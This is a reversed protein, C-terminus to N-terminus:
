EIWIIGRAAVPEGVDQNQAAMHLGELMAVVSDIKDASQKKGPMCNGDPFTRLACHSLQWRLLSNGDHQIKAEDIWKECLKIVPGYMKGNQAFVGCKIGLKQLHLAIGLFSWPDFLVELPKLSAITEAILEYDVRNGPVIELEGAAEFRDYNLVNGERRKIHGEESCWSWSRLYFKGQYPTVAVVSSLDVTSSLDAGVFCPLGGIEPPFSPCLCRDWKDLNVWNSISSVDMNMRLRLFNFRDSATQRARQWEERFTEVPLLTGLAPNGKRWTEEKDPDDAPLAEYIIPVFGPDQISGDRVGRAYKLMDSSFHSPEGKTTLMIQVPQKRQKTGAWELARYLKEDMCHLEEFIVCSADIGHKASGKRVQTDSAIAQLKGNKKPYRILRRSPVLHLVDMLKVSSRILRECEEYIPEAQAKDGSAVIVNPSLENDGLLFYLALAATFTSKGNSKALTLYLRQKLRSSDPRKLGLYRLLDIQWDLLNWPEGTKTERVFVKFFKIIREVAAPDYYCGKPM